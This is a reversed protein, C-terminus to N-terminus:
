VFGSIVVVDEVLNAEDHVAVVGVVGIVRLVVVSLFVLDVVEEGTVAM